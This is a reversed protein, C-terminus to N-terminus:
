QIDLIEKAGQNILDKVVQSAINEFEHIHGVKRSKIMEKGDPSAVFADLNLTDKVKLAIAGLPVTCSGALSSSIARETQVCLNTPEHNLFSLCHKLENDRLVQIGLAGQAVAPIFKKISLKEKIRKDLGLRILGASALVIADFDGQDLKKLRTQLNGRLNKITLNPNLYNIQSQRRLSSTGIVSNNPLSAFNPYKNSIFADSPDERKTIACIEFEDSLKMPVDKMSHVALDANDDILAQELEKIFLGKGGIEALPQNLIIDGQTKFGIVEVKYNPYKNTILSAIFNSQWLALESQRSAIRILKDM